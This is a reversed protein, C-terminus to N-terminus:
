FVRVHPMAVCVTAPRLLRRSCCPACRAGADQRMELYVLASVGTRHYTLLKGKKDKLDAVEHAIESAFDVPGQPAASAGPAEGQGEKSQM